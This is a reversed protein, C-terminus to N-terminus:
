FTERSRAQPRTAKFIPPFISFRGASRPVRLFKPFVLSRERTGLVREVQKPELTKVPALWLSSGTM